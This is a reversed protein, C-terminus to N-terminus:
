VEIDKKMQEFEKKTIEGKVYRTKLIKLLDEDNNSEKNLLENSLKKWCDKCVFLENKGVKRVNLDKSDFQNGCVECEAKSKHFDKYQEITNLFSFKKGIKEKSSAMIGVLCIIFGVTFFIAGFMVMTQGINYKNRTGTDITKIFESVPIGEVDYAEVENIANNGIFYFFLGFIVLAIGIAVIGGRM